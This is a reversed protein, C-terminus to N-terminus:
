GEFNIVNVITSNLLNPRHAPTYDPLVPENGNETFGLFAWITFRVPPWSPTDASRWSRWWTTLSTVDLWTWVCSPTPCLMARMSPCTTPWVTVPIWCSVQVVFADLNSEHDRPRPSIRQELELWATCKRYWYEMNWNFAYYWLTPSVKYRPMCRKYKIYM